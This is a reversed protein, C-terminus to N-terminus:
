DNAALSDRFQQAARRARRLENTSTGALNEVASKIREAGKVSERQFNNLSGRLKRLWKAYPTDGKGQKQLDNIEKDLAKISKKINKIENDANKANCTIVIETRLATNKAM